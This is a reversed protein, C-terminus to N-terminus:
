NFLGEFSILLECGKRRDKRGTTVELADRQPGCRVRDRGEGSAILDRGGGGLILDRGGQAFILDDGGGSILTDRGDGKGGGLFDPKRGGVLYDSGAGGVLATGRDSGVMRDDGDQGTAGSDSTAPGSFGTGGALSLVDNGGAAAIFFSAGHFRKGDRHPTALVDVDPTAEGANLNAGASSGAVGVALQDTGESGRIVVDDVNTLSIEIEGSGDPEETAGPGPTGGGLDLIVKSRDDATGAATISDITRVTPTPGACTTPVPEGSPVFPRDSYNYGVVTIQDGVRGLRMTEGYQPSSVQLTSGTVSCVVEASAAAPVFACALAAGAFVFSRVGARV